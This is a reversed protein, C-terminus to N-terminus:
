WYGSSGLSSSRLTDILGYVPRLLQVLYGPEVGPTGGNPVECYLDRADRNPLGGILFTGEVDAVTLRWRHSALAEIVTMPDEKSMTPAQAKAHILDPDQFGKVCWRARAANCCEDVQWGGKTLVYRAQM